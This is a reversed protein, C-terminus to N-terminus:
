SGSTESEAEDETPTVVPTGDEYTFTVQEMLWTDLKESFASEMLFTEGLNQIIEAETVSTYYYSLYYDMWYQVQAKFEEETVTELGELEAIAHTIMDREVMLTSMKTLEAKWDAGDAFGFYVPAFTDMDPYLAKFEENGM